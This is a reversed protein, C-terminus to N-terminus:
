TFSKLDGTDRNKISQINKMLLMVQDSLRVLAEERIKDQKKFRKIKKIM